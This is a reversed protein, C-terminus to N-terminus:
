KETNIYSKFNGIQSELTEVNKYMEDLKTNMTRNILKAEYEKQMLEDVKKQLTEKESQLLRIRETFEGSGSINKEDARVWGGSDIQKKTQNLSGMVKAKLDDKNKYFKILRGTKVKDRFNKLLEMKSFDEETKNRELKGINEVLFALVPKGQKLAYNFEMETYSIRHGSEDTSESGYKGAIIVLYIDSKDIVKKIFNWQEMNSAPFMEMGVPMCDCELIAQTVEKREEILDEYTSSVFVDFRREVICTEKSITNCSEPPIEAKIATNLHIEADGVTRYLENALQYILRMHPEAWIASYLWQRNEGDPFYNDPIGKLRALERPTIRRLREDSRIVPIRYVGNIDKGKQYKGGKWVYLGSDSCESLIKESKVNYTYDVDKEQFEEFTRPYETHFPFLFRETIDNRIAVMCIKRQSVPAGTVDKLVFETHDFSYGEKSFESQYHQFIINRKIHANMDFLFAKPKRYKCLYHFIKLYLESYQRNGAMSATSLEQLYFSSGIVIDSVPLNEPIVESLYETDADSNRSVIYKEGKDKVLNCIVKFGAQEFAASMTGLGACINIATYERRM